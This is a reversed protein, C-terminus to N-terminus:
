RGAPKVHILAADALWSHLYEGYSASVMFEFTSSQRCRITVPMGAFRTRAIQGPAFAHAHLDLSCGKSLLERAHAGHVEIRTFAASLNTARFTGASFAGNFLQLLESADANGTLVLWDAPGICLIAVGSTRWQEAALTGAVESGVARPWAVNLAQPPAEAIDWSQVRIITCPELVRLM